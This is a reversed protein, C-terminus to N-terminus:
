DSHLGITDYHPSDLTTLWIRVQLRADDFLMGTADVLAEVARREADERFVDSGSMGAYLALMSIIPAIRMDEIDWQQWSGGRPLSYRETGVRPRSSLIGVDRPGCGAAQAIAEAPNPAVVTTWSGMPNDVLRVRYEIMHLNDAMGTATRLTLGLGESSGVRVPM